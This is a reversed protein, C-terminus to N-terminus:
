AEPYSGIIKYSVTHNELSKLAARLREDECHGSIDAFFRYEWAQQRSPRSQIM